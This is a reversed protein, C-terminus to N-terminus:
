GEKRSLLCLVVEHHELDEFHEGPKETIRMQVCSFVVSHFSANWQGLKSGPSPLLALLVPKVRHSLLSVM